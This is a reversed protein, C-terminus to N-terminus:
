QEELHKALKKVDDILALCQGADGQAITRMATTILEKAKERSIRIRQLRNESLDKRSVGLPDIWRNSALEDVMSLYCTHEMKEIEYIRIYQKGEGQDDVLKVRLVGTAEDGYGHGSYELVIYKGAGLDMARRLSIEIRDWLPKEESAM